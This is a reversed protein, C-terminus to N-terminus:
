IRFIIQIEGRKFNHNFFLAWKQFKLRIHFKIKVMNAMYEDIGEKHINIVLVNQVLLSIIIEQSVVTVEDFKGKRGPIVM